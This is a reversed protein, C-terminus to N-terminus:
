KTVIWSTDAMHEGISSRNVTMLIKAAPAPLLAKVISFVPNLIWPLDYVLIKGLMYPYYNQFINILFKIMDMDVNSLGAGSCDFVLTTRQTADDKRIDELLSVIFKNFEESSEANKFHKRVCLVLMKFGSLDKEDRVFLAGTNLLEESLCEKRIDNVGFVKRWKFTKEIMNATEDAQEGSLWYTHLWFQEVIEDQQLKDIDEQSYNEQGYKEFLEATKERVLSIEESSPKQNEIGPM